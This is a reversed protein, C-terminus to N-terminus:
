TEVRTLKGTVVRYVFLTDHGSESFTLCSSTVVGYCGDSDMDYEDILLESFYQLTKIKFWKFFMGYVSRECM